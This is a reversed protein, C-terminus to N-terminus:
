SEYTVFEQNICLNSNFPISCENDLTKVTIGRFRLSSAVYEAILDLTRRVRISRPLQDLSEAETTPRPEFMFIQAFALHHSRVFRVTAAHDEENEGPFGAIIDTSISQVGVKKLNSWLQEYEEYTHGRKMSILVRNSASQLPIHINGTINKSSLFALEEYDMKALWYPNMSGLELRISPYRNVITRVLQAFTSNIDRGYATIDQGVLRVMDHNEVIVEIDGIIDDFSRSRHWGRVSKVSCFSCNGYCGESIAVIPPPCVFNPLETTENNSEELFDRLANPIDKRRMFVVGEKMLFESLYCGSVILLRPRHTTLIKGVTRTFDEEREQSFTCGMCIIIEAESESAYQLNYLYQIEQRLTVADYELPDCGNHIISFTLM